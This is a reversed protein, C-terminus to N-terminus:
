VLELLVRIGLKAAKELKNKGPAKGKVLITTAKTVHNTFTGGKSEVLAKFDERAMGNYTGTICVVEGALPGEKILPIFRKPIGVEKLNQILLQNAQFWQTVEQAITEGINPVQTLDELSAKKLKNWTPFAEALAEATVKGVQPIGLAFLWTQFPKRLAKRINFLLKGASKTSFGELTLLQSETLHFLDPFEKVLGSAALAKCTEEGLGQIDLAKRSAFHALKFSFQNCKGTQNNCYWHSTGRLAKLKSGCVPCYTPIQILPGQNNKTVKLIHPIIEGGKELLVTDGEHIRLQRLLTVNHLSARKVTTGALQIPKLNAVPTIVGTRGVQFDISLVETEVKETTFKFATAWNVYKTGIGLAKRTHIKNVKIVAGDIPYPKSDRDMEFKLLTERLTYPNRLGDEYIYTYTPTNFGLLKLWQLQEIQPKEIEPLSFAYFRLKRSECLSAELSKITGATLNRPNAFQNEKNLEKFDSKLIVVEGRVEFRKANNTITKPVSRIFRAQATVDDGITGDGRTVAKYLKGHKYILSLSVGDLKDEIILDTTSWRTVFAEVEELSYSNDISLMPIEHRTKEFGETLDSGPISTVKSTQDGELARLRSLLKDFAKDTILPKGQYYADSYKSVMARLRDLKSM